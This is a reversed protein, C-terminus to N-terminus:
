CQAQRRLIPPQLQTHLQWGTRSNWKKKMVNDSGARDASIFGM